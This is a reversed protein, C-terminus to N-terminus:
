KDDFGLNNWLSNQQKKIFRILGAITSSNMSVFFVFIQFFRIKIGIKEFLWGIFANGYL